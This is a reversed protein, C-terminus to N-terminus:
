TWVLGHILGNSLFFIGNSKTWNLIIQSETLKKVVEAPNKGWGGAAIKDKLEYYKCVRSTDVGIM